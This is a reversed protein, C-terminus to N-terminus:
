ISEEPTVVRTSPSRLACSCSVVKTSTFGDAATMCTSSSARSSLTKSTRHNASGAMHAAPRQVLDGHARPDRHQHYFESIKEALNEVSAIPFFQAPIFTAITEAMVEHDRYAIRADRGGLKKVLDYKSTLPYELRRSQSLLDSLERPLSAYPSYESRVPESLGQVVGLCGGDGGGPEQKYLVGGSDWSPCAYDFDRCWRECTHFDHYWCKWDKDGDCESGSDFWGM